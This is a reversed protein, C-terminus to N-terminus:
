AIRGMWSLTPMDAAGGSYAVAAAIWTAVAAGLALSGNM